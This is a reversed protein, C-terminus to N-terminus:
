FGLWKFFRKLASEKIIKPFQDEFEICYVGLNSKTKQAYTNHLPLELKTTQMPFEIKLDESVITDILIENPNELDYIKYLTGKTKNFKSANVFVNEGTINFLTIKFREKKYENQTINLIEDMQFSKITNWKSNLDLGFTSQWNKFSYDEKKIIRVARSNKTYYENNNFDWTNINETANTYLHVYGTYVINNKFSSSEAKDLRLANNGGIIVNGNVVIDKLPAKSNVGLTLSGADGSAKNPIDMNHYLVNDLLKINTARNIGNTDDTAVIVNNKFHNGPSGNNFITNNQLVINKVYSTNAKTSASWVEVGMYYNNFITNNIIKRTKDSTNQVYIGAGSGRVKSFYGNNYIQCGYILSGGTFKWSGFGSGPNNYIKLNIFQCDEGSVHNIGDVNQFNNDNMSRSFQGLFTIELDKFVVNKGKVELVSTKQSIINGNLIVKDNNFPLVTIPLNITNSYITSVFRGNYIGEHIYIIAGDALITKDLNLATELDFPADITGKPIPNGLNNIYVKPFVHLIDQAYFNVAFFISLITILLHKM